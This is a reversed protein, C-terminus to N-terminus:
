NSTTIEEYSVVASCGTGSITLVSNNPSAAYQLYIGTDKSLAVLTANAPVTIGNAIYGVIGGVSVSVTVTGGTADGAIAISNVKIVMLATSPSLTLSSGGLPNTLSKGQIDSVNVINPM